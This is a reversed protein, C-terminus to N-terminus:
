ACSHWRLTATVHRAQVGSLRPEVGLLAKYIKRYRVVIHIRNNKTPISTTWNEATTKEISKRPDKKRGDKTLEIEAM